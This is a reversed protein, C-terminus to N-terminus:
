FSYTDLIRNPSPYDKDPLTVVATCRALHRVGHSKIDPHIIYDYRRLHDFHLSEFSLSRDQDCIFGQNEYLARESVHLKQRWFNCSQVYKTGHLRGYGLSRPGKLM